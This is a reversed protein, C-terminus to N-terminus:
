RKRTLLDAPRRGPDRQAGGQLLAHQRGRGQGVQEAYEEWSKRIEEDFLQKLNGDRLGEQRKAPHYVVMDSILARALRRAKLAPDQSLFPNVPRSGTVAAPKAPAPAPPPAPAPTRCRRPLRRLPRRGRCRAARTPMPAAPLPRRADGAPAVAPRFRRRRSAPRDPPGGAAARPVGPAARGADDAGAPGGPAPRSPAPRADARPCRGRAAPSRPPRRPPPAPAAPGRRSTGGAVPAPQGRRPRGARRPAARGVTARRSPRGASRSCRAASTAARACAARPFRPRTSGICTACNPCSVNM